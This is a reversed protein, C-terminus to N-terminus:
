SLRTALLWELIRSNQQALHSGFEVHERVAQRSPADAPLGAEDLTELCVVADAKQLAALELRSTTEHLLRRVRM